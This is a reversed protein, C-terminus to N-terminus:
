LVRDVDLALQIYELFESADDRGQERMVNAYSRSRSYGEHKLRQQWLRDKIQMWHAGFDGVAQTSEKGQSQGLVYRECAPRLLAKAPEVVCM